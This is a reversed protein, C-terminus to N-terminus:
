SKCSFCIKLCAVTGKRMTGPCRVPTTDCRYISGVQLYRIEAAPLLPQSPLEVSTNSPYSIPTGLHSTKPFIDRPCVAIKPSDPCQCKPLSVWANLRSCLFALLTSVKISNTILRRVFIARRSRISSIRVYM